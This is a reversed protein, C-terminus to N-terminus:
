RSAAPAPDGRPPPGSTKECQFDGVLYFTRHCEVAAVGTRDDVQFEFSQSIPNKAERTMRVGCGRKGCATLEALARVDSNDGFVNYLGFGTAVILLLSLTSRAIKKGDAM